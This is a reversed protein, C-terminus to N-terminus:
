RPAVAAVPQRRGRPLDARAAGPLFRLRLGGPRSGLRAEADVARRRADTRNVDSQTVHQLLATLSQGDGPKASIKLDADWEDYGTFPQTHGGGKRLPGFSKVSVGGVVSLPGSGGAYALRGAVSGDASAVRTSVEFAGPNADGVVRSKTVINIIGGLADSGYLVSGPGRIIEIREIQGIDVTNLYQNPGLRYIANNMRIGDVMLLVQNGILGRLIPSGGGDNSQQVM